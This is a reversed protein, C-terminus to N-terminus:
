RKIHFGEPWHERILSSVIVEEVKSKPSGTHCWAIFSELHSEDGFVHIHVTGDPANWVEGSLKFLQAKEQTYKRFWVGQVKGKVIIEISKM